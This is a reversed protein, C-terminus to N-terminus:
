PTADVGFVNAVWKGFKSRATGLFAARAILMTSWAVLSVSLGTLGIHEPLPTIRWVRLLVPALMAAVMISFLWKASREERTAPVKRYKAEIVEAFWGGPIGIGGAICMIRLSESVDPSAGVAACCLLALQSLLMGGNGM